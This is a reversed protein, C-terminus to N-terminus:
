APKERARPDSAEAARGAEELKEVVTYGETREAVRSSEGGEPEHGPVVVFRRAEARVAEYDEREVDIRDFCRPDDCECLLPLPGQEGRLNRSLAENAARFMAEVRM